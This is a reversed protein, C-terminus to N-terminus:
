QQSIGLIAPKLTWLQSLTLELIRRSSFGEPFIVWGWQRTVRSRFDRNPFEPEEDTAPVEVSGTSDELVALYARAMAILLSLPGARRGGVTIEAPVARRNILEDYAAAAAEVVRRVEVRFGKRHRLPARLPGLTFYPKVEKPLAGRELYTRLSYSLAYFAEALSVPKGHIIHSSPQEILREALVRLDSSTLEVEPERYLGPLERYTIVKVGEHGAVLAVFEEFARLRARYEEERCLPAPRPQAPMAGRAFNVADWFEETRLMCPHLVVVIVGGEERLSRYLEEFRTKVESLYSPESARREDFHLAYRIALVGCFWHPQPEFIGDAYVQIGLERMAYPVQPAWDGGPQIYASPRQGFIEELDRLGPGEREIILKVGDEWGSDRLQEAITPHLSHYNSQYAIDHARLARIVDWRGRRRLARAKEGVIAFSARIGYKEFIEALDLLVDDAEPTVFDETDLQFIVYVTG